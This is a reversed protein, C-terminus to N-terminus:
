TGINYECNEAFFQAPKECFWHLSIKKCFAATKAFLAMKQPFIKLILDTGFRKM